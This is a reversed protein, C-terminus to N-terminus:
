EPAITTVHQTENNTVTVYAWARAAPQMPTIDIRLPGKGILGPQDALLNGILLFAHENAPLLMVSNSVAFSGDLTSIAVSMQTPFLDYAYLRLGIRYRPDSPVNVLSFPRTFMEHERVIPVSTGFDTADRSVDRVLLSFDLAPTAQRPVFEVLGTPINTGNVVTSANADLNFIGDGTVAFANGNHAAAQTQWQSGFAGPGSFFVPLLIREFFAPDRGGATPFYNLAATRTFTGSQLVSDSHVVVDVTGPAHPPAAVDVLGSGKGIVTADIGDIKVTADCFEISTPGHICSIIPGVLHITGGTEPITNPEIQFAQDTDAVALHTTPAIDSRVEYLGAPLVGLQVPIDFSGILPFGGTAITIVQGARTWSAFSSGGGSGILHAVVLSRSDPNPPDFRINAAWLPSSMLAFAAILLTRM